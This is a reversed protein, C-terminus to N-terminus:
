ILVVLIHYVSWRASGVHFKEVFNERRVFLASHTHDHKTVFLDTCFSCSM